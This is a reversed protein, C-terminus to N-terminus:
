GVALICASGAYKVATIEGQSDPAGMEIGIAFILTQSNKIAKTSSLKLELTQSQFPDSVLQWATDLEASHVKDRSDNYGGKEYVVDSVVGLSMSFRYFPQKWPVHLNIGTILRPLTIVASKTKRNISCSVPGTVISQFPHKNNLRFGCLMDRQQSLFISREGRDGVTDQLQIEKCITTLSPTFNQGTLVKVQALADRIASVVKGVGKFEEMNERLRVFNKGTLVQKKTPGGKKRLIIKDSGKMRYASLEGVSGTFVIGEILIAM